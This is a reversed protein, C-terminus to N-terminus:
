VKFIATSDSFSLHCWVECNCLFSVNGTRNSVSILPIFSATKCYMKLCTEGVWASYFKFDQLTKDSVVVSFCHNLLFRTYRESFLRKWKWWSETLLNVGKWVVNFSDQQQHFSRSEYTLMTENVDNNKADNKLDWGRKAFSFLSWKQLVLM